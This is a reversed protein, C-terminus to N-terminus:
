EPERASDHWSRIARNGIFGFVWFVTLGLLSSFFIATFLRESALQSRYVDILRGIGPQGERFFFDGVIAGIVSLGASIRFGAFMAPMAAPLQLKRLAAVRGAGHLRFLDLLGRDVSHLGFLTNTIIPFLSILVCVIVRSRFDYKFWFGILPVLAIIPITQLIVAYPYFSREIWLAQAMLIAFVLGLAIAIFLGVLAVQTTSWLGRLVESLNHFDLFGVRIVQQPPPLLFRQRPSLVEYSVVLWIAVVVTAVVIPPVVTGIVARIRAKGAGGDGPGSASTHDRPVLLDVVPTEVVPRGRASM